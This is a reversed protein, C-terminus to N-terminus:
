RHTFCRRPTDRLAEFRIDMRAMSASCGMYVMAICVDETTLVMSCWRLFGHVMWKSIRQVDAKFDNQFSYLLCQTSDYDLRPTLSTWIWTM